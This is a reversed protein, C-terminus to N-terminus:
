LLRRTLSEFKSVLDFEMGLQYMTMVGAFAALIGVCGVAFSVVEVRRRTRERPTWLRSVVGLVPLETLESFGEKTYVAPRLLALLLALGVGGALGAITAAASLKPRDPSVPVLPIRPPEIINFQVEGATQDADSSIKLSELRGVLKEYNSKIIHYDRNMQSFEAEVRPVTDVLKALADGRRNYEAVRTELAAVESRAAAYALTLEQYIPNGGGGGGGALMGGELSQAKLEALYAERQGQLEAHLRRSSIVDPHKDTYQLALQDLSTELAYIREDYPTPPGMHASRGGSPESSRQALQGEMADVRERAESLELEAAAISERISELRTYYTRGESPMVGVNHRKFEKLRAEAENLRTEHEAIQAELFERSNSADKRTEGLAGEVFINLIAEVVRTALKPDRHRYGIVFINGERDTGIVSVNKALGILLREFAQPTNATLDMDTNRAVKELNPRVLLTRRIMNVKDEQVNGGVAIGRLLPDLMSHTDIFVKANVEYKNPMMLVFIWGGVCIVSASVLALWRYRWLMRIYTRAIKVFEDM